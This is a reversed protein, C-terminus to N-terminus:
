QLGEMLGDLLNTLVGFRQREIGGDGLHHDEDVLDRRLLFTRPGQEFRENEDQRGVRRVQSLFQPLFEAM